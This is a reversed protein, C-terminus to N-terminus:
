GFLMLVSYPPVRRFQCGLAWVKDMAQCSRVEVETWPVASAEAPRVRLTAGVKLADNVEIRMGTASRDLVWGRHTKGDGDTILLAVQGGQRRMAQRKELASGSVFPDTLALLAAPVRDVSAEKTNVPMNVPAKSRSCIFGITATLLLVVGGVALPLWNERVWDAFYDV